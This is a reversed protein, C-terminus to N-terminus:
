HEWLICGKDGMYDLRVNVCGLRFGGKYDFSVIMIEEGGARGM